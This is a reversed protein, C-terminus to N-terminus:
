IQVENAASIVEKIYAKADAMSTGRLRQVFKGLKSGESCKHCKFCREAFNVAFGGKDNCLPCLGDTPSMWSDAPGYFEQGLLKEIVARYESPSVKNLDFEWKANEHYTRVKENQWRRSPKGTLPDHLVLVGGTHSLLRKGLCYKRGSVFPNRGLRSLKRWDQKSAAVIEDLERSGLALASLYVAKERSHKM